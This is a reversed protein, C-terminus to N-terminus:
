RHRNWALALPAASLRVLPVAVTAIMLLLFRPVLPTAFLWLLVAYVAAVAALWLAAGVVLSRDPLLRDRHLRIAIWCALVMRAAVIVGLTWFLVVWLWAHAGSNWAWNLLPGIAVIACLMALGSAKILGPRGTLGLYLSQVMQRWTTLILTALVLAGFVIARSAGVVGAFGQARDAVIPWTDSLVLAVPVTAIVLIWAAATSWVAMGLRAGVLAASSVPRTATFPSVGYDDGAGSKRVAIATFSAMFPPTLAVIVLITFVLSPADPAWLLLLEVPLLIGVFTPLSRGYRKWELWRQAAGAGAFPRREFGRRALGAGIREFGASRDTVGGRRARSVAHRAVLFALPIQPALLAVMFTESARFEIALISAVQVATLGFVTAAVRMAPLPYSAWTIAQIWAMLVLGFLGPWLLPVTMPLSVPWPAVIRMATWLLAVSVAGYLMPWATLTTNTVPLTFLRSPYISERGALNGESGYTFAIILWYFAVTGPVVVLFAFGVDWETPLRMGTALAVLRVAALAVLYAGLAIFGFRHRWGFAWAFAAAHSRM